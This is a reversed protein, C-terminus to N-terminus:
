GRGGNVGFTGDGRGGIYVWPWADKCIWTVCMHLHFRWQRWIYNRPLKQNSQDEIYTDGNQCNWLNPFQASWCWTAGWNKSVVNGNRWCIHLSSGVKFLTNGFNNKQDYEHGKTACGSTSRADFGADYVVPSAVEVGDGLASYEEPTVATAPRFGLGLLTISLMAFAIVRRM